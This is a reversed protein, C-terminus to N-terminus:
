RRPYICEFPYNEWERTSCEIFSSFLFLFLILCVFYIWTLFSNHVSLVLIYSRNIQIARPSYTYTHFEHLFFFINWGCCFFLFFFKQLSLSLIEIKKEACVALSESISFNCCCFVTQTSAKVLKSFEIWICQRVFLLCLWMRSSYNHNNKWEIREFYM